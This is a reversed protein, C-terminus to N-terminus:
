PPSIYGMICVATEDVCLVRCPLWCFWTRILECSMLCSSFRTKNWTESCRTHHKVPSLVSIMQTGFYHKLLPRMSVALLDLWDIRFSILGSYGNSSSISFSFSWYEPWGIHLVSEKSFVTISPFISALLLLPRCLILHNSPLVSEICMFRLLSQFNTISLSAQGVAM